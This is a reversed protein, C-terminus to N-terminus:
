RGIFGRIGSAPMRSALPIALDNSFSSEAKVTGISSFVRVVAVHMLSRGANEGGAVNSQAKNEALAVYVTVAGDADRLDV